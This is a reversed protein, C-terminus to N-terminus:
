SGVKLKILELSKSKPPMRGILRQREEENLDRVRSLAALPKAASRCSMKALLDDEYHDRFPRREPTEQKMDTEQEMGCLGIFFLLSLTALYRNM